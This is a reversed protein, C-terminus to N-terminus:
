SPYPLLINLDTFGGILVKDRFIVPITDMKSLQRLEFLIEDCEVYDDLDIYVYDLHPYYTDLLKKAKRCFGCFERGFIVFCSDFSEELINAVLSM